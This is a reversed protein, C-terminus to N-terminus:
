LIRDNNINTVQSVCNHLCKRVLIATGAKGCRNHGYNGINYDCTCFSNFDQNISTLFYKSRPLLKRETILAIDICKKDLINSLSYASSMVGRVNWCLLNLLM